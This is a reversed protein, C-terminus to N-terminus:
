LTINTVSSSRCAGHNPQILSKDAGSGDVIKFRNPSSGQAFGVVGPEIKAIMENPIRGIKNPIEIHNCCFSLGAGVSLVWAIIKAQIGQTKM